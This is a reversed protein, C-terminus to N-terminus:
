NSREYLMRGHDLANRILPDGQAYRWAVAEPRYTLLDLAYRANIRNLIELSKGFGKGECPLIVPLISMPILVRRAAPM